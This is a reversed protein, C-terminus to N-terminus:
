PSLNTIEHFDQNETLSQPLPWDLVALGPSAVVQPTQTRECAM